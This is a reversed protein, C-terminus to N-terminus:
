NSFRYRIPKEILKFIAIGSDFFVTIKNTGFTNKRVTIRFNTKLINNSNALSNDANRLLERIAVSIIGNGKKPEDNVTSFGVLM